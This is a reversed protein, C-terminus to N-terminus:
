PRNLDSQDEQNQQRYERSQTDNEVCSKRIFFLIHFIRLFINQLRDAVYGPQLFGYGGAGLLHEFVYGLITIHLVSVHLGTICKKLCKQSIRKVM